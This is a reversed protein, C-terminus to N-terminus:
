PQKQCEVFGDVGARAFGAAASAGASASTDGDAGVTGADGRTGSAGPCVAVGEGGAQGGVISASVSLGGRMGGGGAEARPGTRTSIFFTFRCTASPTTRFIWLRRPASRRVAALRGGTKSSRSEKTILTSAPSIAKVVADRV